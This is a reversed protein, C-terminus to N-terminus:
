RLADKFFTVPERILKLSKREFREKFSRSKLTNDIIVKKASALQTSSSNEGNTDANKGSNNKTARIVSPLFEGYAKSNWPVQANDYQFFLPRSSLQKIETFTLKETISRLSGDEEKRLYTSTSAFSYFDNKLYTIFQLVKEWDVSQPANIFTMVEDLNSAKKNVGEIGYFCDSVYCLPTKFLMALVGVGSNMLLTKDALSLLDYIHTDDEVFIVDAGVIPRQTELPHKKALVVWENPDLKRQVNTVLECFQEYGGVDGSFYKIVTDSPRQFPIFLVKKSGIRYLKDLKERLLDKGLRAGNEELTNGCEILNDIYFSTEHLVDGHIHQWNQYDYKTSDANFGTEDIFWSDPLAGREFVMFPFNTSKAWKYLKLRTENGYPNWFFLRQINNRKLFKEFDENGNFTFESRYELEGLYPLIQRISLWSQDGKVGLILTKKGLNLDALPSPGIKDQDYKVMLDTLLAKNRHMSGHYAGRKPRPHWIHILFLSSRMAIEGYLGFFARFGQYEMSEYNGSNLYYNKPRAFKPFNAALRHILEFDECGHGYFEKRHGGLALYHERNVVMVSTSPAYSDIKGFTQYEHWRKVQHFALKRDMELFEHSANESLYFCPILFFSNICATMNRLKIEDVLKEYFKNDWVLDVDMFMVIDSKAHQVGFDRAAGVSFTEGRSDHFLYQVNHSNCINKLIRSYHENSGSDVMVFNVLKVADTEALQRELNALVYERDASVRIPIIVSLLEYGNVNVM